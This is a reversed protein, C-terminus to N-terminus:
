KKLWASLEADVRAGTSLVRQVLDMKMSRAQKADL